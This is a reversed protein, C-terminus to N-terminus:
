SLDSGTADATFLAHRGEANVALWLQNSEDVAIDVNDSAGPSLGEPLEVKSWSGEGDRHWLQQAGDGRRADKRDVGAKPTEVVAWLGGAGASVMHRVHGEAPAPEISFKGGDYHMLHSAWTRENWGDNLAATVLKREHTVVQGLNGDPRGEIESVEAECRTQSKPCRQSSFILSREDGSASALVHIQGSGDEFFEVPYADDEELVKRPIDLDRPAGRGGSVRSFGIKGAEYDWGAVLYGGLAGKRLMFADDAELVRGNDGAGFYGVKPPKIRQAVWRSKEPNDNSKFKRLTISAGSRDYHGIQVTWADDPFRGETALNAVDGQWSEVKAKPELSASALLRNNEIRHFTGAVEVVVGRQFDLFSTEADTAQVLTWRTGDGDSPAPIAEHAGDAVVAGDALLAVTQASEGPEPARTESSQRASPVPEDSGETSHDCAGLALPLSAAALSLLVRRPVSTSRVLRRLYEFTSAFPPM